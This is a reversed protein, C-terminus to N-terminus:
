PTAKPMMRIQVYASCVFCRIDKSVYCGIQMKVTPQINNEECLFLPVKRVRAWNEKPKEVQSDSSTGDTRGARVGGRAMFCKVLIVVDM